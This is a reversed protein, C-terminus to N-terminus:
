VAVGRDRGLSPIPSARGKGDQLLSTLWLCRYDRLNEIKTHKNKKERSSTPRYSPLHHSSRAWAGNLLAERLECGLKWGRAM